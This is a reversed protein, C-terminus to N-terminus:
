NNTYFLGQIHKHNQLENFNSNVISNGNFFKWQNNMDRSYSVYKRPEGSNTESFIAGMLMYNTQLMNRMQVFEAINIFENITLTFSDWKNYEIQLILNLPCTYFIKTRNIDKQVKNCYKCQENEDIYLRKKRYHKFLDIVDLNKKDLYKTAREPYLGCAYHILSSYKLIRQCEPCEHETKSIYYFQESIKSIYKETFKKMIANVVSQENTEDINEEENKNNKEIYDDIINNAGPIQKVEKKIPKNLESHIDELVSQILDFIDIETSKNIGEKKTFLVMRLELCKNIAEDYNFNLPDIYYLCDKFRKTIFYKKDDNTTYSNVKESKFYNRIQPISYLCELVSIVSTVKLFKFTFLGIAEAFARKATPRQDPPSLLKMIFNRIEPSYNEPIKAEKRRIPILLPGLQIKTEPLENSLVFFFTLGLMYIDSKFDYSGGLAMEPSMFCIPGRITNHCRVLDEVEESKIASVGFDSIKLNGEADLLINDPKIDRHIIKKTEHLYLLGSLSQILLDWVKREDPYKGEKKNRNIFSELSGGNIYETIIYFNGNEKFSSFYTIVHPHDLNELLKIEKQIEQRQEENKYRDSKIEKMAYVKKTLKSKVLCVSGFHGKGLERQMTFDSLKNGVNAKKRGKDIYLFQPQGNEGITLEFDSGM